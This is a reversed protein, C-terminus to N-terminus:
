GKSVLSIPSFRTYLQVRSQVYLKCLIYRCVCPHSFSLMVLTISQSYANRAAATPSIVHLSVNRNTYKPGESVSYQNKSSFEPFTTRHTSVCAFGHLRTRACVPIGGVGTLPPTPPLCKIKVQCRSRTNMSISVSQYLSLFIHCM